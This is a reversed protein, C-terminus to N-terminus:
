IHTALRPGVREVRDLQQSSLWQWTVKSIPGETCYYACMAQSREAQISGCRPGGEGYGPHASLLARPKRGGCLKLPAKVELPNEMAEAHYKALAIAWYLTRGEWTCAYRAARNANAVIQRMEADHMTARRVVLPLDQFHHETPLYHVGAKLLKEFFQSFASKQRIMAHNSLLAACTRSTGVGGDAVVEYKFASKDRM